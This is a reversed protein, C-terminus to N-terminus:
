RKAKAARKMARARAQVLLEAKDIALTAQHVLEALNYPKARIGEAYFANVEAGILLILAFYFFFLLLIIAFGTNGTYSGLFHRIYLPFLAIYVQLALSAVLTGRWSKRWSIKQNPVIMYIAQFLILSAILGGFVGGLGISSALLMVPVLLIFILLMVLAMLNQHWFSRSPTHYIIAFCDEMASFLRSGSYLALVIAIIGLFGANKSLLGLAPTLVDKGLVSPFISSMYAILEDKATNTLGGEIFGLVAAVAIVIPFLAMLLHYALGSAFNFTWDNLFKLWFEGFTAANELATKVAVHKEEVEVLLHKADAAAVKVVQAAKAVESETSEASRAPTSILTDTQSFPPLSPTLDFKNSAEQAEM